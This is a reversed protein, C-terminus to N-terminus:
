HPNPNPPIPNPKPPFRCIVWILEGRIITKGNDKTEDNAREWFGDQPDDSRKIPEGYGLDHCFDSASMRISLGNKKLLFIYAQQGKENDPMKGVIPAAADDAHVATAFMGLIAIAIVFSRM